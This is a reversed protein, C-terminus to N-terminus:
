TNNGDKEGLLIIRAETKFDDKNLKDTFDHKDCLDKLPCFKCPDKWAIRKPRPGIVGSSLYKIQFFLYKIADHATYYHPINDVIIRGDVDITIDFITHEKLDFGEGKKSYFGVVIKGKDIETHLMYSILQALHSLKVEKKRITKYLVNKSMSAKTEHVESNNVIFDIRGSYEVDGYEKKVPLERVYQQSKISEQTEWWEEHVAGMKSYEEPIEKHIGQSVVLFRLCASNYEVEYQDGDTFGSSSPYIKLTM